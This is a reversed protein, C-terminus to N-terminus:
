GAVFLFLAMILYSGPLHLMEKAKVRAPDTKGFDKQKEAGHETTAM